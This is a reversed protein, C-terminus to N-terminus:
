RISDDAYGDIIVKEMRERLKAKDVRPNPVM